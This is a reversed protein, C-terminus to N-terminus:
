SNFLSACAMSSSVDSTLEQASRTRNDIQLMGSRRAAITTKRYNNKSVERSTLIENYTGNLKKNKLESARGRKKKKKGGNRM